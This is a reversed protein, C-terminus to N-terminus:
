YIRKIWYLAIAAPRNDHTTDGGTATAGTTVSHNHSGANGTSGANVDHNHSDQDTAYTGDGHSHSSGTATAGSLAHNNNLMATMYALTTYPMFLFGLVPWIVTDFARAFWDTLLWMFFMLVRPVALAIVVLICGM